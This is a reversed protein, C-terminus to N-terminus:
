GVLEAPSALRSLAARHAVDLAQAAPTEVDPHVGTGEWNTGSVPHVPRAVPVTVELHAHARFGIRPHAGGGTREGVVVARGLQQLNYALEEGGSFTRGSTLVYTPKDAPYGPVPLWAASWSQRVPEGARDYMTHLLTPEALLWGCVLAVMDPSGGVNERLDLLLADTGSLLRLAASMQDGALQPPFLYPRIELVGVNGDLRLVRGVGGMTSAALRVMRDDDPHDDRDALPEDHYKLRLHLDGNLSQLDTTVLEGLTRPDAAAAYRGAALHDTLLTALRAAVEPFVYHEDVLTATREVIESIEAQRM